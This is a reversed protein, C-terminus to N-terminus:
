NKERFHKKLKESFCDYSIIWETSTNRILDSSPLPLRKGSDFINELIEQKSSGNILFIRKQAQLIKEFSITFRQEPQTKPQCFGFGTKKGITKWETEPFLSAIHGDNGLGLILTSFPNPPSINGPLTALLEVMKSELETLSDKLDVPVPLFNKPTSKFEKFLTEFINKQNSRHDRKEVLREDVQTWFIRDEIKEKAILASLSEYVPFPTSGGSLGVLIQSNKSLQKKFIELIQKAAVISYSEDKAVVTLESDFKNHVFTKFM